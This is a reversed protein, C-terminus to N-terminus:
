SAIVTKLVDEKGVVGILMGEEVVPLTHFNNDVMLAAVTDVGTDPGVSIPNKTMAQGVTTAIIKQAEKEMQKTFTLPIIGDLLTFFSPIPLKKQQAILDSQCIIGVVNGRKDTVPIGNIRKELLLNAADLIETDPFVTIPEKTMIDKATLM